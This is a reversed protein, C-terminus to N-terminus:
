HDDIPVHCIWDFKVCKNTRSALNAGDTHFHFLIKASTNSVYMSSQYNKCTNKVLIPFLTRKAM